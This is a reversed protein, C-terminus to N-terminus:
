RRLRRMDHSDPRRSARGVGLMRALTGDRRIFHHHIAAGAHALALVGAGYAMLGHLRSWFAEMADSRALPLDPVVILDFVFSPIRLPSTSAIAWGTLPVIVTLAMLLLHAARAALAERRPTGAVPAPRIGSVAWGIRLLALALILFGFSKHWQYLDFQLRPRGATEQTLFGLAIQGFFLFAITWHFAIAVLGFTERSNRLM